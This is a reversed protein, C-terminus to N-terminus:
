KCATIETSDGLRISAIQSFMATYSEFVIHVSDILAGGDAQADWLHELTFGYIKKDESDALNIALMTDTHWAEGVPFLTLSAIKQIIERDEDNAYGKLGLTFWRSDLWESDASNKEFKVALKYDHSQPEFYGFVTRINRLWEPFSVKEDSEIHDLLEEDERYFILSPFKQIFDMIESKENEDLSSSNIWVIAEHSTGSIKHDSLNIKNDM